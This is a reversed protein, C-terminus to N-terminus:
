RGVVHCTLCAPVASTLERGAREEVDEAPGTWPRSRLCAALLMPGGGAVDDVQAVHVTWTDLDPALWWLPWDNVVAHGLAWEIVPLTSRRRAQRDAALDLWAYWRFRPIHGYVAPSDTGHVGGVM